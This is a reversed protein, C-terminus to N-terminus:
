FHADLSKSTYNNDKLWKCYAPLLVRTEKEHLRCFHFLVIDGSSTDNILQHYNHEFDFNELNSDGSGLSWYVIRYKSRLSIWTPLTLSGFPPRLLKSHLVQNAREIDDLYQKSSTSYAHFHSYTHNGISHSEHIIRSLLVPYHEANDGRCFFTAKFGYKRLEDLVFECIGPEPGDDFTLYVVKEKTPIHSVQFYKLLRNIIRKYSFRM